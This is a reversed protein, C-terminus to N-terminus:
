LYVDVESTETAIEVISIFFGSEVRLHELFDVLSGCIWIWQYRDMLRGILRAALAWTRLIKLSTRSSCSNRAQFQICNSCYPNPNRGAM